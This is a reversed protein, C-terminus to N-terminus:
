GPDPLPARGYQLHQGLIAPRDAHLVAEPLALFVMLNSASEAALDHQCGPRRSRRDNKVFAADFVDDAAPKVTM